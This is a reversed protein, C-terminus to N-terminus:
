TPTGAPPAGAIFRETMRRAGPALLAAFDYHDVLDTLMSEFAQRNRVGDYIEMWLMPEDARHMLRGVIGLEQELASQIAAVVQFAKATGAAAVLYYIYYHAPHETM